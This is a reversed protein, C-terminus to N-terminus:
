ETVLGSPLSTLVESPAVIPLRKDCLAAVPEGLM